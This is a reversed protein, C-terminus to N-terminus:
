KFGPIYVEHFSRAALTLQQDQMNFFNKGEAYSRGFATHTIVDATLKHFEKAVEFKAEGYLVLKSWQQLMTSTREVITPVM